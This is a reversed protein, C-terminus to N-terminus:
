PKKEFYEGTFKYIIQKNTVKGGEWVVPLSITKEDANYTILKVPREPRDVVSFFDFDFGLENRIGTKTKILKVDDNLVGSDISFIKIAQYCDKSSYIGHKVALYFTKGANKLIYIDSYWDGLEEKSTEDRIVKSFVKSESKYQFVTNFYRMTGGSRDDWSYIRFIGDESTAITLGKSKLESLADTISAPKQSTYVLLETKFVENARSLSDYKNIKSDANDYDAWYSIRDFKTLLDHRTYQGCVHATYLSFILAIIPKM